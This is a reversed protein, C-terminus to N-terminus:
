KYHTNLITETEFYERKLRIKIKEQNNIVGSFISKKKKSFFFIHIYIFDLVIIYYKQSTEM